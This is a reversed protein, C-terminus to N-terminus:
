NCHELLSDRCAGVLLREMELLNNKGPDKFSKRKDGKYDSFAGLLDVLDVLDGLLDVVHM